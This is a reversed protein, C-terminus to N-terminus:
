EGDGKDLKKKLEQWDEEKSKEANSIVDFLEKNFPQSEVGEDLWELIEFDDYYDYGSVEGWQNNEDFEVILRKAEGDVKCKCYYEGAKPPLTDSVWKICGKFAKEMADAKARLTSYDAFIEDRLESIRPNADHPQGRVPTGGLVLVDNLTVEILENLKEKLKSQEM